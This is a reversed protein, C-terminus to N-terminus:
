FPIEDDLTSELKEIRKELQALVKNAQVTYSTGVRSSKLKPTVLNFVLKAYTQTRRLLDLVAFQEAGESVRLTDATYDITSQLCVIWHNLSDDESHGVQNSSLTRVIGLTEEIMEEINRPKRTAERADSSLVAQVKEDLEQWCRDFARELQIDSLPLSTETNVAGLFKFVEERSYPTAQFQLLPGSLQASEVGFLLPFVKGTKTDKSVAGAEFLLWPATLNESTICFLGFQSNQLKDAIEAAWRQGKTIDDPTFYPRVSQIVDPLWHRFAEGIQRSREGSWSIFIQM